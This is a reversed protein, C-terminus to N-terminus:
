IANVTLALFILYIRKNFLSIECAYKPHKIFYLIFYYDYFLLLTFLENPL